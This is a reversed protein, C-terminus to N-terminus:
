SVIFQAIVVIPDSSQQMAKQLVKMGGGEELLDVGLLFTYKALEEDVPIESMARENEEPDPTQGVLKSVDVAM